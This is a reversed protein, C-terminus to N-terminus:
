FVNFEAKLKWIDPGGIIMQMNEQIQVKKNSIPLLFLGFPTVRDFGNITQYCMARFQFRIINDKERVDVVEIGSTNVSKGIFIAVVMHKTFDVNPAADRKKNHRKWIGEWRDQSIIRHFEPKGIMSESGQWIELVKIIRGPNEPAVDSVIPNDEKGLLRYVEKKGRIDFYRNIGAGSIKFLLIKEGPNENRVGHVFGDYQWGLCRKACYISEKNEIFILDGFFSRYVELGDKEKQFDPNDLCPAMEDDCWLWYKYTETNAKNAKGITIFITLILFIGLKVILKRM